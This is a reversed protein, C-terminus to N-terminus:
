LNEKVKVGNRKVIYAPIGVVVCNEPVNKMVVANAGVASNNGINIAGLVKAGASIRVNDGIVPCDTNSTFGITVQQNIWCDKGISKAAIVTAFGHQIFLGEGISDTVIYLSSMKPCTIKLLHHVTGIRHYFLNRYEPYYSLLYIFGITKKYPIEYLNLWRESDIRVIRRNRHLFFVIIHPICLLTYVSLRITILIKKM